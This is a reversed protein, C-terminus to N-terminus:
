KAPAHSSRIYLCAYLQVYMRVDVYFSASHIYSIVFSFLYVTGVHYCSVTFTVQAFESTGTGKVSM